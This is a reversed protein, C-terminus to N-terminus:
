DDIIFISTKRLASQMLPESLIARNAEKLAGPGKPVTVTFRGGAPTEVDIRWVPSLNREGGKWRTLIKKM